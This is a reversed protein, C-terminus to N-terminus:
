VAGSRHTDFSSPKSQRTLMGRIMRTREVAITGNGNFRRRQPSRERFNRNGNWSGRRNRPRGNRYDPRREENNNSSAGGPGDYVPLSSFHSHNSFSQSRATPRNFSHSNTPNPRNDLGTIPDISSKVEGDAYPNIERFAPLFDKMRETERVAERELRADRIAPSAVSGDALRFTMIATRVALDYRFAAPWNSNERKIAFVNDKHIRFKAALEIWKYHELYAIFCDFAVVWEGFTMKWELPVTLGVYTDTLKEKVSRSRISQQLLDQRLCQPNFVTLQIYADLAAMKPAFYKPLAVLGHAEIGEDSFKVICNTAIKTPESEGEATLDLPGMASTINRKRSQGSQVTDETTRPIATSTETTEATPEPPFTITSTDPVSDSPLVNVPNTNHNSTMREGSSENPQTQVLGYGRSQLWAKIANPSCEDIRALITNTSAKFRAQADHDTQGPVVTM